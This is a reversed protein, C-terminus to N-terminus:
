TAFKRTVRSWLKARVDCVNLVFAAAVYCAGGITVMGLLGFATLPLDLAALALWMPITALGARVAAGYPIPAPLVQRGYYISAAIAVLYGIVTAYIAGMLGIRPLLLVNLAVNVIAAIGISKILLSPRKGLVFVHDFYHVQLGALLGSVAIWPMIDAAASRFEEGILVAALHYRVAILGVCAPIALALLAIGNRRMQEIGADRGHLELAKVALPLGPMSVAFFILAMPQNAIGYSVSYIGVAASGLFHEVLIRDSSSMVLNLIVSITLPFGFAALTKLRERDFTSKMSRVIFPIDAMVSLMSGGILGLLIGQEKMGFGMVLIVSFVLGMATQGCELMNYRAVRGGGRHIGLNVTVLGKLLIFVLGLWLAPLLHNSIPALLLVAAYIVTFIVAGIAYGTYITMILQPLTGEMQAKDYFRNAGSRLWLALVGQCLFAINFVLAYVGYETPSLLRTFIYIVAFSVFAPLLNAPAYGAIHRFLLAPGQHTRQIESPQASIDSPGHPGAITHRDFSFGFLFGYVM